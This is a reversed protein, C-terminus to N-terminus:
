EVASSRGTPSSRRLEGETVLNGCAAIQNAVRIGGAAASRNDRGNTIGDPENSQEALIARLVAYGDILPL